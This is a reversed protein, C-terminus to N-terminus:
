RQALHVSARSRPLAARRAREVNGYVDVSSFRLRKLQARTVTIAKRYRVPQATGSRVYTSAVASADRATLRLVLRTGKRTVRAVTRPATGDRRQSKVRRGARAVVGGPGVTITGTVPRYQYVRGLQTGNIARVQIGMRKGDLALTVPHRADTVITDQAGM